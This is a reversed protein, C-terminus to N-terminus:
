HSQPSGDGKGQTLHYAAVSAEKVERIMEQKAQLLLEMPMGTAKAIKKLGEEQQFHRTALTIKVFDDLIIARFGTDNVMTACEKAKNWGQGDAMAQTIAAMAQDYLRNDEESYGPDAVQFRLQYDDQDSM